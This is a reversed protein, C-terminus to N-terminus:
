AETEEDAVSENEWDEPLIEIQEIPISEESTPNLIQPVDNIAAIVREIGPDSALSLM